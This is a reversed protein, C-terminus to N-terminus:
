HTPGPWYYGPGHSSEGYCPQAERWEERCSCHDPIREIHPVGHRDTYELTCGVVSFGRNPSTSGCVPCREPLRFGNPEVGRARGVFPLAPIAALLRLFSRRLM